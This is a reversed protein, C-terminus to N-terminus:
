SYLTKEATNWDFHLTHDLLAQLWQQLSAAELVSADHDKNNENRFVRYETHACDLCSFIYYDWEYIILLYEPWRREGHAVGVQVLRLELYREVLPM